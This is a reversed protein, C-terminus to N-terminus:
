IFHNSSVESIHLAPNCLFTEGCSVGVDKSHLCHSIRWGDFPCDGIDIENGTCRLNSMMVPGTGQDYTAGNFAEAFRSFDCKIILLQM